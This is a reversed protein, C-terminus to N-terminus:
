WSSWLSIVFHAFIAPQKGKKTIKAGEKREKHNFASCNGFEFLESSHRLLRKCLAHAPHGKDRPWKLGLTEVRELLDDFVTQRELPTPPPDRQALAKGDHYTKVVSDIWALV